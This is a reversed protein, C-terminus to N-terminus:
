MLARTTLGQLQKIFCFLGDSCANVAPTCLKSGVCSHLKEGATSILYVATYFTGLLSIINLIRFHRFTPVLIMTCTLIGGWMLSWTRHPVCVDGYMVM